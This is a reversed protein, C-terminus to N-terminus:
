WISCTPRLSEDGCVAEIAELTCGGQFVAMCAFLTREHQTLLDYSWEITARLAQQRAPADRPGRSLIDLGKSLEHLMGGPSLMKARAAVLEIALPLGDLFWCIRSIAERNERKLEFGPRVSQVREIFLKISDYNRVEDLSEQADHNPLRLPPVPYEQEGYIRLVERSTLLMKVNPAEQLLRALLPAAAMVHEFNDVILLLHKHRLHRVLSSEVLEERSEVIGLVEAVTKAVLDAGRISALPVFWVGDRYDGAVTEAAKIALRTKGGGGPGTLTLLHTKQLLDTVKTIERERGIFPTKELPLQPRRQSVAADPQHESQDLLGLERALAVAHTRSHVGLKSYIHRNHWRVTSVAIFLQDAIEKNSLGEAILQLVEIERDKLDDVLLNDEKLLM